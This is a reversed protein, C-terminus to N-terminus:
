GNAIREAHSLVAADGAGEAAQGRAERLAVVDAPLRETANLHGCACKVLDVFRSLAPVYIRGAISKDTAPCKCHDHDDRAVARGLETIHALRKSRPECVALVSYADGLLGQGIMADALNNATARIRRELEPKTFGRKRAPVPRLAKLRDLETSYLESGIRAHNLGAEEDSLRAATGHLSMLRDRHALDKKRQKLTLPGGKALEPPLGEVEPPFAFAAPQSKTKTM